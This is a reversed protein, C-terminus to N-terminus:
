ARQSVMTLQHKNNITWHDINNGRMTQPGSNTMTTPAIMAVQQGRHDQQIHLVTNPEVSTQKLKSFYLGRKRVLKGEFPQQHTIKSEDAMTIALGQAILRAVSIVAGKVDCVFFPASAKRMESTYGAIGMCMSIRTPRQESHQSQQKKWSIYQSPHALDLHACM